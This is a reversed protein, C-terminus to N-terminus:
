EFTLLFADEPRNITRSEAVAGVEKIVEEISDHKLMADVLEMGLGTPYGDCHRYFLEYHDHGYWDVCIMARTSM